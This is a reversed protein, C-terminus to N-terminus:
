VRKTAFKKVRDGQHKMMKAKDAVKLRLPRADPFSPGFSGQDMIFVEDAAATPGLISAAVSALRDLPYSM